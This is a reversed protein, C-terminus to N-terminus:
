KIEKRITEWVGILVPLALMIKDYQEPSVAYGVLGALAVIGKITSPEKLKNILANM